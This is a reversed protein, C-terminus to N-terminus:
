DATLQAGLAALDAVGPWPCTSIAKFGADRATRATTPGIAAVSFGSGRTDPYLEPEGRAFAMWGSVASPSAFCLTVRTARCRQALSHQMEKLLDGALTKGSPDTAMPTTRYVIIRSCSSGRLNLEKELDFAIDEGSFWIQKRSDTSDRSNDATGVIADVLAASTMSDICDIDRNFAKEAAAATKKGHTVIRSTKQFLRALSQNKPLSQACAAVANQSTFIIDIAANDPPTNKPWIQGVSDEHIPLLEISICPVHIIDVPLAMLIQRDTVLDDISRTWIMVPQGKSHGPQNKGSIDLLNITM